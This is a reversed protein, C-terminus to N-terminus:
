KAVAEIFKENVSQLKKPAATGDKLTMKETTVFLRGYDDPPLVKRCAGPKFANVSLCAVLAEEDGETAKCVAKITEAVSLCKTDKDLGVWYRSDGVTVTGRDMVAPIIHDIDLLDRLGRLQAIAVDIKGRLMLLEEAPMDDSVRAVATYLDLDTTM